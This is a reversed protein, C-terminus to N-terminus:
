AYLKLSLVKSATPKVKEEALAMQEKSLTIGHVRCGITEAARCRSRAHLLMHMPIFFSMATRSFSCTLFPAFRYSLCVPLGSLREKCIKACVSAHCLGPIAILHSSCTM